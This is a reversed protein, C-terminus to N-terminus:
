AKLPMYTSQTLTNTNRNATDTASLAATEESDSTVRSVVGSVRGTVAHSVPDCQDCQGSGWLLAYINVAILFIVKSCLAHCYKLRLVSCLYQLWGCRPASFVDRFSFYVIRAHVQRIALGRAPVLCFGCRM